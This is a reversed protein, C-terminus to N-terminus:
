MAGTNALVVSARRFGSIWLELWKSSMGFLGISVPFLAATWVFEGVTLLLRFDSFRFLILRSRTNQM